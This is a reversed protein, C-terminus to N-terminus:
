RWAASCLLINFFIPLWNVTAMSKGYYKIKTSDIDTAVTSQKTVTPTCAMLPSPGAEEARTGGELFAFAGWGM